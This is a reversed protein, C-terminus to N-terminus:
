PKVLQCHALIDYSDYPWWTYHSSGGTKEIRGAGATLIVLCPMLNRLNRRRTQREADSLNTFVSVGRSSCESVNSVTKAPVTKCLISPAQYQQPRIDIGRVCCWRDYCYTSQCM